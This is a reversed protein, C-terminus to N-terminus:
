GRVEYNYMDESHVYTVQVQNELLGPLWDATYRM